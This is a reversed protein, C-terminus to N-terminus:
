GRATAAAGVAESPRRTALVSGAVILAFGAVTAATLPEDLVLVGAVVAVAPNLYTIVTARVPGVEAVLAFLLGFAVATCLVALVVVSWTAQASPLRGPWAVVTFPLYVLAAVSLSVAVVGWVPLDALYRTMIVPGIAYGVVVVGIEATALLAGDSATGVDFGVLLAVGLLGLGIGVAGVPGLRESRGTLLAIGVGVVPVTALLLGALSSPLEREARALFIWPVVIEAATYALVPRWRRLVPLVAGRALAVPLVVLAALFCRAFVLVAPEIEAVAIKILLYPIGWIVGLSVFLLLVRRSV